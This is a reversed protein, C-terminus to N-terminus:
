LNGSIVIHDRVVYRPKRTINQLSWAYSYRKHLTDLKSKHRKSVFARRVFVKCGNEVVSRIQDLLRKRGGHLLDCEWDGNKGKGPVVSSYVVHRKGRIKTQVAIEYLSSKRSQNSFLQRRKLCKGNFKTVFGRKSSLKFDDLPTYALRWTSWDLNNCTFASRAVKERHIQQADGRRKTNRRSRKVAPRQKTTSATKRKVAKATPKNQRNRPVQKQSYKTTKPVKPTPKVKKPVKTASRAKKPIKPVTDKFISLVPKLSATSIYSSGSENRRLTGFLGELERNVGKPGLRSRVEAEYGFFLDEDRERYCIAMLFDCINSFEGLKLYHGDTNVAMTKYFDDAGEHDFAQVGYIKVGSKRLLSVEERWDINDVNMEYDPEHPNADGIMVLIKQSKPTWSFNERVMRLILEYCEDEDGGGTGETDKVFNCLEVVDTCLDLERTLYFVDKDCYDGHAIVGIRIGPIDSQLRQIMDQLRGQLEDFISSMSGTTDFSFVIEM